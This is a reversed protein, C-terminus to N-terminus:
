SVTKKFVMVTLPRPHESVLLNSFHFKKLGISHFLYTRLIGPRSKVNIHLLKDLKLIGSIRKAVHWFKIQPHLFSISILSFNNTDFAEIWESDRYEHEGNDRRTFNLSPDFNKEKLWDRSYKHDLMSDLTEQRVSDVWSRDISIFYGGPRIIRSIEKVAASLSIAHHLSEIQFGFDIANEEIPMNEFVGYCPLISNSDEGLLEKATLSIGTTVFPKTAELAILGSILSDSDTKKLACSFLALGSGVEIGIGQINPIIKKSKLLSFVSLIVAFPPSGHSGAIDSLSPATLGKEVASSRSKIAISSITEEPPSFDLYEPRSNSFFSLIQARSLQTPQKSM